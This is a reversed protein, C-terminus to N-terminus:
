RQDRSHPNMKRLNSKRSNNMLCLFIMVSITYEIERLFALLDRCEVLVINQEREPATSTGGYPLERRSM